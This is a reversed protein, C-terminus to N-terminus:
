GQTQIKLSKTQMPQRPYLILAMLLSFAFGSLGTFPQFPQTGTLWLSFNPKYTLFGGTQLVFSSALIGARIGIPVSLCGQAKQRVGSLSLSLLWLGPVAWLSRQILSFVLGSIIYARHYGLDAAIEEPLWSRFLLEEVLAVGTATAIGKGVMMLMQGYVKLCTLVDFSSPSYPWSLSVCGLVVNVAQISLVLMIGGALGKLYNLIQALSTFNLGYQEFPNEYGRIRKGWLMVLIMVAVYLGIVCALEAIRLPSKSTWGQVLTPLLPIVVPSWLVLVMCVFGLIRQILPREAIHFVSILKNTLSMAGRIGGWLLALKGVLRLIGGRQSLDGLMSVLREQDVGGDEKTPVVPSAVSMAKEALSTVLNGQHKESVKDKQSGASMNSSKSSNVDNGNSEFLEQVNQQNVLLASAGLAATVAGVMVSANNGDNPEDNEEQEPVLDESLGNSKTKESPIHQAEAVEIKDLYKEGINGAEINLTDDDQLTAVSFKKRLAALISGVIVGVPLVKRLHSSEQVASSIAAVIHEGNLTDVEELISDVSLYEVNSVLAHRVDYRVSLAVANAVQELDSALNPEFEDTGAAGLKRGVEVKLADLIIKEVFLTLEVLINDDIEINEEKYSTEFEEVPEQHTESDLIVYLPEIVKGDGETPSSTQAEKEVPTGNNGPQELLKWQGEEPIYELLLATTADSDLSELPIDSAHYKHLNEKFSSSGFTNPTIHSPIKDVKKIKGSSKLLLNSGVLQDKQQNADKGLCSATDRDKLVKTDTGNSSIPHQNSEEANRPHKSVSSDSLKDPQASRDNPTADSNHPETNHIPIDNQEEMDQHESDHIRDAQISQDVPTADSKQPMNNEMPNDNEEEKAKDEHEPEVDLQSIVDEIVGFISNVAVQTSDDMGTFADFAQSVSFTPSTSEPAPKSQEPAPKIDKKQNDTEEKEMSQSEPSSVSPSVSESVVGSATMKNQDPESKEETKANNDDKKEALVTKVNQDKQDEPNAEETKKEAHNNAISGKETEKEVIESSVVGQGTSSDEGINSKGSDSTEKKLSGNTNNGDSGVSHSQDSIVSKQSSDSQPLEAETGGSPMQSGPQNNASSDLLTDAKKMQDSPHHDESLGEVNSTSKEDMKPKLGSSVSPKRSINLLDTLKQQTGQARLIGSVATTLKERVDDPVAGQLATMVTEGRGIATIVKKKKEETLTGPMTVDLMNMIVQATQLVEGNEVESSVEEDEVMDADVTNTQELAGNEVKQLGKDEVGQRKQLEKKPRVIMSAATDGEEVIEHIPDTNYRNLSNSPSLDLIKTDKKTNKTAKGEKLTLGKSLNITIDVDELLPHRGKLLGLEVATLWEITLQQCWAIASRGGYIGSSPLCSCLLLSTFPNEAISSRPISFLPSSGNDNQIFLVPIKVDGILNRTSSESYFDEIAEFGYSVMSIEKEFDRVSKASLAKEVNFGKARGQFIAKNSRLIDILGSTLNNDIAMHRSSRTAEELDFPNDICAAATLPTGEGVEALYKTLMNAGYGCGVGMLTSWPRAKNIYHVATSIDDSDAATFLRATTLPSGACGRPNMVIPFCGSKLADCVFSRINIDMSGQTSGPVLLLTTDLGHEERLDLNAPWDLSIVGGDDTSLCVRQYELKEELGRDGGHVLVRGSDLRVYHRDEKVLKENVDELLESGVFSISPCRLLVFRNFPTPSTFMIWEGIDTGEPVRGYGFRSAYLAFGSALGIVPAFFEVSKASPLQATLTLLFDDVPGLQSRMPFKRCRKLRRRRYVRFERFQLPNPSFFSRFCYQDRPNFNILSGLNSSSALSM